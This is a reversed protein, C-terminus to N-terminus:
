MQEMALDRVFYHGATIWLFLLASRLCSVSLLSLTVFYCQCSDFKAATFTSCCNCIRLIKCLFFGTQVTRKSFLTPSVFVSSLLCTWIVLLPQYFFFTAPNPHTHPNLKHGTERIMLTLCAYLPDWWYYEESRVSAFTQVKWKRQKQQGWM